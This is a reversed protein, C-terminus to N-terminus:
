QFRLCGPRCVVYERLELSKDGGSQIREAVDAVENCGAGPLRSFSVEGGKDLPHLRRKTVNFGDRPEVRLSVGDLRNNGALRFSRVGWRDEKGRLFGDRPSGSGPLRGCRPAECQRRCGGRLRDQRYCGDKAVSSECAGDDPGQTQRWPNASKVTLIQEVEPVQFDFVPCTPFHEGGQSGGSTFGRGRRVQQRRTVHRHCIM